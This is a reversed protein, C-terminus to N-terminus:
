IQTGGDVVSIGFNRTLDGNGGTSNRAEPGDGYDDAVSGDLLEPRVGLRDDHEQGYSVQEGRKAVDDTRYIEQDVPVLVNRTRRVTM